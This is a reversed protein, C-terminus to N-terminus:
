LLPLKLIMETGLLLDDVHAVLDHEDTKIHIHM